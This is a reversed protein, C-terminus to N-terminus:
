LSRTVADVTTKRSHPRIGSTKHPGEEAPEVRLVGRRALAARAAEVLQATWLRRGSLMPPRPVDRRRVCENLRWEPVGLLKAVDATGLVRDDM